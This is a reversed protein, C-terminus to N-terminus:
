PLPLLIRFTAGRGGVAPEPSVLSLMGGAGAVLELRDGRRVLALFASRGCGAVRAVCARDSVVDGGVWGRVARRVQERRADHDATRPM